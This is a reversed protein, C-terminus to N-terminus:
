LEFDTLHAPMRRTRKPHQRQQPTATHQQEADGDDQVGEHEVSIPQGQDRPMDGRENPDSAAAADPSEGVVHETSSVADNNETDPVVKCVADPQNQLKRDAAKQATNGSKITDANGKKDGALMQALTGPIDPIDPMRDGHDADPCVHNGVELANQDNTNPRTPYEQCSEVNKYTTSAPEPNKPGDPMRVDCEGPHKNPSGPGNHDPLTPWGPDPWNAVPHTLVAPPGTTTTTKDAGPAPPPLQPDQRLVSPSTTPKPVHAETDPVPDEPTDDDNMAPLDGVEYLITQDPDIELCLDSIWAPVDDCHYPKLRNHHVVLAKTRPTRQVKYTVDSMAKLVGYPGKWNCSLKPSIGKQKAMSWLWVAQGRQYTQTSADRNYYSKQREASHKLHPRAAEHIKDIKNSLEQVYSSALTPKEVEPKGRWLSDPLRPNRGMLM